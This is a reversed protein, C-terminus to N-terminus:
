RLHHQASSIEEAAAALARATHNFEDTGFVSAAHALLGVTNADIGASTHTLVSVIQQLEAVAAANLTGTRDLQEAIAQLREIPPTFVQTLLETLGEEDIPGLAALAPGNSGENRSKWEHLLEPPYLKEGTKRDDVEAHHALCLLVLNKFADREGESLGYRFRPTGPRV